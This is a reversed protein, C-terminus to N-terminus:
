DDNAGGDDRRNPGFSYVVYERPGRRRYQYASGWPDLPVNALLEPVLATLGAREEPAAGYKAIYLDLAVSIARLDAQAQGAKTDVINGCAFLVATLLVVTVNRLVIEVARM